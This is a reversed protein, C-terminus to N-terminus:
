LKRIRQVRVHQMQEDSLIVFFLGGPLDAVDLVATRESGDRRLQATRVTVGRADTLRVTAAYQTSSSVSITIQRTAPNPYVVIEDMQPNPETALITLIVDASTAEGCGNVSGRVAYRGSQVVTFSPGTAGAIPLGNLLWQITGTANSTLTFGTTTIVPVQALQVTVSVAASRVPLCSNAVQM